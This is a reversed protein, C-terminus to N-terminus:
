AVRAHLGTCYLAMGAHVALLDFLERDLEGFAEKQPLLRFIALIGTVRGELKLPVLASLNAEEPRLEPDPDETAMWVEGGRVVRGIVGGDCALTQYPGAEIGSSSALSLRQGTHGLEFVAVEESGVLNAVIEQIAGFLAPRSLTEHLRYSAVYLSALNSHQLEVHAFEETFQRNRSEIELLERELKLHERKYGDIEEQAALLKEELLAKESRLTAVLRRANEADAIMEQVLRRTGEQVRRPYEGPAKATDHM